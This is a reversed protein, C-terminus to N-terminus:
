CFYHTQNVNDISSWDFSPACPSPTEAVTSEISNESPTNLEVTKMKIGVKGDKNDYDGDTKITLIRTKTRIVNPSLISTEGSVEVHRTTSTVDKSHQYRAKKASGGKRQSEDFSCLFVGNLNDTKDRYENNSQYLSAEDSPCLTRVFKPVGPKMKLVDGMKQLTEPKDDSQEYMIALQIARARSITEQDKYSRKRFLFFIDFPAYVRDRFHSNDIGDETDNDKTGIPPYCFKLQENRIKPPSIMWSLSYDDMTDDTTKPTVDVSLLGNLEHPMKLQIPSM